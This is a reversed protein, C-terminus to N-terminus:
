ISSARGGAALIVRKGEYAYTATKVCFGSEISGSIAKVQEGCKVKVKLRSLEQLFLRVVSEAQGSHPYYYGNKVTPFIGLERFFNVTKEKDFQKLISAATEKDQSYYCDMSQYENTFNCKGNGTALLKRGPKEEKELVTVQCGQRAAWIAAMMGSAGGGVVIVDRTAAM